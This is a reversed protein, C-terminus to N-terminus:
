PKAPQSTTAAGKDKVIFVVFKAPKTKSANASQVHVDDPNEYFTQGPQLTM